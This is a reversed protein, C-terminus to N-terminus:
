FKRDDVGLQFSRSQQCRCVEHHSLERGQAFDGALKSLYRFLIILRRELITALLSFSGAAQYKLAQSCLNSKITNIIGRTEAKVAAVMRVVLATDMTVMTEITVITVMIVIVMTEIPHDMTVAMIAATVATTATVLM